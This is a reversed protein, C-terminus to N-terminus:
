LRSTVPGDVHASTSHVVDRRHSLGDLLHAKSNEGDDVFELLDLLAEEDHVREEPRYTGDSEDDRRKPDDVCHHRRDELARTLDTHHLGYTSTLGVDSPYEERLRRRYSEDSAHEPERETPHHGPHGVGHGVM